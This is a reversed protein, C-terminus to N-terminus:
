LNAYLNLEKALVVPLAFDKLITQRANQGMTERLAPNDMVEKIAERISDADTGCLFGNEKHRILERNGVVDTAIVPLGCSMAELLVKPNGEYLSPLIFAGCRNLEEPLIDNAVNGRFDVDAEQERTQKKLTEEQNGSGFVILKVKLQSAATILNAVNKDQVLRGVFSIAKEDKNSNLPRFLETDIYNPILNIKTEPTNFRRTVFERINEATLIIRDAGRYVIREILAILLRKYFPVGMQESFALWEYGCRVVLPKRYIKKAVYAAIGGKMQNTKLVDAQRIKKRLAIPLLITYLADPVPWRKPVITINDALRDQYALDGADGYTFFWIREFSKALENYTRIERSLNGVKDWTRLSVGRTFFLALRRIASKKAAQEHLNRYQAVTDALAYNKEIRVRAEGGLARRAEKAIQILEHWAKALAEPDGPPVIRGTKGVIDRLDGVDTVACPLGSAMAEGVVLPSAETKSSLTFVDLANMVSPIDDRRGLLITADELGADKLWGMLEGNDRSLGSGCLLFRVGPVTRALRESAEVFTRYDKDAHFRGVTGVLLTGDSLGLEKRLRARAETDPRFQGADFGNRIVVSKRRDYGLSEHAERSSESCYVISKPIRNSLFAGLKATWVTTRKDTTSDLKTHHVGWVVPVGAMKAALGGILNGHYMWTQVVDPQSAKLWKALRFVILPNPLRRKMRLARVPVGLARIKEGVAGVYTLSIVEAETRSQASLLRFLMMEAGGTDLGTIVHVVKM